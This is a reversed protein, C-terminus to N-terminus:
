AGPKLLTSVPSSLYNRTLGKKLIACAEEPTDAYSFLNLDSKSITRFKVMAQFNIVQNWYNRGYLVITLSKKIKKTQLLTLVEMFEDLSGFGGPFIVLAKAPYLFWFKRMFFYHFEFSLNNSIYPNSEQEFPLSINLGMSKGGAKMAGKNAAEMIGPGGGSCIVFHRSNNLRKAWKTLQYTLTAADEYYDSMQYDVIADELKQQLMRSPRKLRMIKRKVVELNKKADKRPLIRASGFFVITDKIGEKKFRSLPELFEALIRLSRGQPSSLFKLNKYAKPTRTTKQM